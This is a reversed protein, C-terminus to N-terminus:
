IFCLIFTFLHISNSFFFFVHLMFFLSSKDAFSFIYSSSILIFIQKGGANEGETTYDTKADDKDLLPQYEDNKSM